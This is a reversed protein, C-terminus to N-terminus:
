GLPDFCFACIFVFSFQQNIYYYSNQLTNLFLTNLIFTFIQFFL